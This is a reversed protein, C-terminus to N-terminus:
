GILSRVRAYTAAKEVAIEPANDLLTVPWYPRGTRDVIVRRYEEQTLQHREQYARVEDEAADRVWDLGELEAMGEAALLVIRGGPDSDPEIEVTVRRAIRDTQCHEISSRVLEQVTEVAEGLTDRPFTEGGFVDSSLIVALKEPVAWM